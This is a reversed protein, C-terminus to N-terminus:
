ESNRQRGELLDAVVETEMAQRDPQDAVPPAIGIPHHAWGVVGEFVIPGQERQGAHGHHDRGRGVIYRVSNSTGRCLATWGIKSQPAVLKRFPDGQGRVSGPSAEQGPLSTILPDLTNSESM